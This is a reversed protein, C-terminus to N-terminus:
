RCGARKAKTVRRTRGHIKTARKRVAKRGQYMNKLIKLDALDKDRAAASKNQMLHKRSIFWVPLGDLLGSERAPWAEAFSVGDIESIIDIRNPPLGLMLVKKLFLSRKVPPLQKKFGFKALVSRLAAENQASTSVFFDFDGTMRPEAYRNFAWGGIVLYQVNESNLLEIFERLDQILKM